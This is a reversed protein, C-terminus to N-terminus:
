PRQVRCRTKTPRSFAASGRAFVSCTSTTEPFSIRKRSFARARPGSRLRSCARQPLAGCRRHTLRSTDISRIRRRALAVATQDSAGSPSSTRRGARRRSDAAAGRCQRRQLDYEGRRHWPRRRRDRRSHVRPQKRLVRAAYRADQAIAALMDEEHHQISTVLLDPITRLWLVCVGRWGARRRAARLHDRFLERMDDAYEQRFESPYLRLLAAYLRESM